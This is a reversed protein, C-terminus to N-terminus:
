STRISGNRIRSQLTHTHTHSLVVKTNTKKEHLIKLLFFNLQHQSREVFVFIVHPNVWMCRINVRQLVGIMFQRIGFRSRVQTKTANTKNINSYERTCELSKDHALSVIPHNKMLLHYSIPMRTSSSM